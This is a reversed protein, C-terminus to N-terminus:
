RIGARMRYLTPSSGAGPAAAVVKESDLETLLKAAVLVDIQLEAAVQEASVGSIRRRMVQLIKMKLEGKREGELEDARWSAFLAGAILGIIILALAPYVIAGHEEIWQWLQAAEPLSKQPAARTKKGDALATSRLSILPTLFADSYLKLPSVGPLSGSALRHPLWATNSTLGLRQQNFSASDKEAGWARRVNAPMRRVGTQSLAPESQVAM